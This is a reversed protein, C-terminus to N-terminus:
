CFKPVSLTKVGLVLELGILVLKFLALLLLLTTNVFGKSSVEPKSTKACIAAEACGRGNSGTRRALMAVEEITCWDWDCNACVM